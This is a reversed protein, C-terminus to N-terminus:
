MIAMLDVPTVSRLVRSVEVRRWDRIVCPRLVLSRLYVELKKSVLSCLSKPVSLVNILIIRESAKHCLYLAGFQCRNVNLLGIIGEYVGSCCM